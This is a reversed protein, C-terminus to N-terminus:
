RKRWALEKREWRCLGGHADPLEGLVPYVQRWYLGYCLETVRIHEDISRLPLIRGCQWRVDGRKVMDWVDVTRYVTGDVVLTM